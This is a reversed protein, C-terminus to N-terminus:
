AFERTEGIGEINEVCRSCIEPHNPNSGVNDRIHWCRVCKEGSAKTVRLFVTQEDFQISTADVPKNELKDISAQSTILVFRLEDNLSKIENYINNDVYLEVNADLSSGIEGKGRLEELLKTTSARLKQVLNWDLEDTKITEPFQYWEEFLVNEQNGISSWIEDATYTMIPAIWRIMAQLIHHMATQASNRADSGVKCTYLRDKLVDLYFAGLDQSCFHHLKQYINHFQYSNFDSTIEDQLDKALSIIWQDLKTCNALDVLQTESDFDHLNGILFRATNRIRRYGDAVRKLIEDSITIENRYDASAVWLRLIDGGMTDLIQKPSIVNGVSKSMKKGDKDVVFGHTLVQKYPARNNIAVGTLLSSHFWGRHQDSGELYIDAPETLEDRAKLVAHHTVGSDFWVDLVDSAKEYDLYDDIFDSGDSNFWADIGDAEIRKAIKEMVNLTDPHLDGTEKHTFLTIPVGWTRQRSICWEPRNEIMSFIRNEGWSPVWKVNKIEELAKARLSKKDMAVFWQPTTRFATPTKHRWCHPYSHNITELNLLVNKEELLEVIAKNAKWIHQGAFIPTTDLYVGNGAVPNDIELNYQKGVVFDEVGHGPATHVAGTGADTTVHDGLIVPVQRDYFPHNLLLGELDGGKVTALVSSNEINYKSVVQNVLDAAVVLLYDKHGSLLSYELEPHLSVAQNAPLTWPTTTWIPISIKQNPKTINFAETAKTTDIVEFAVDIAPSNKNQYEIEAEALASGCDFCWNVPKVGKVVHGNEVIKSLARVMDAEYKFDKTLYPNEWDGIVGLRKFEERQINVQRDAYERCKQRFTAADVKQGVKGVKKEVQIEIPLGHCDWGPVYPAQFGSMLKSKVVIDKLIKNVAHGIHISGNAYPPGDHLVFKPRNQTAEQIKHYLNEKDCKKLWLPEKHSLAAKMSFKTKPLNLTEKYNISM